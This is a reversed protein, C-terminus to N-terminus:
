NKEQVKIKGNFYDTTTKMLWEITGKRNARYIWLWIICYNAVVLFPATLFYIPIPFTGIYLLNFLYHALYITLSSQGFLVLGRPRKHLKRKYNHLNIKLFISILILQFGLCYFGWPTTARLLFRPLGELDFMPNRNIYNTYGRAFSDDVYEIKLGILIGFIILIIGISILARTLQNFYNNNSSDDLNIKSIGQGVASGIFLFGFFPFPYDLHIGRFLIYYLLNYEESSSLINLLPDALLFFSIGIMIRFWPSTRLLPYCCLRGIGISLLVTWVWLNLTYNITSIFVNYIIAFLLIWLTKVLFDVHMHIRLYNPDQEVKRQKTNYSLFLSIGSLFIFMSSGIMGFTVPILTPFWIDDGRLWFEAAHGVIM